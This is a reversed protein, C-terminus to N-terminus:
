FDVSATFFFSRSPAYPAVDINRAIAQNGFNSVEPDLGTYDTWTYLNRGSLELRVARTGSPFIRNVLSSPLDYALTVERLKVYSADEVFDTTKTGLRSRRIAGPSDPGGFDPSNRGFDYLFKTLNIVDGGKKWDLLGSLRWGGYSFENAFSMQFDPAADGVVVVEDGDLGVIQTVSKGEEIRFSGLSVGFGGVDFPEVPLATVKSTNRAFTARSVWDFDQTLVPTVALAVEVGRNRLEAGNFLETGFGTSPALTRQLILDEISKQYVSFSLSARQDLLQADLGLEIETQREPEIEPNGKVTNPGIFVGLFGGQNGTDYNTSKMGYLPQNGSQGIAARLKLEDLWSVPQPLRYSASAKPFLYFKDIDGNNTSREARAGLTLLLREDLTLFEEQAYFALAEIKERTEFPEVKAGQDINTQGAFLQRTIVSSLSLDSKERQVGASTTATFAGSGPIFVHAVNLSVNTNVNTNDGRVSTGPFGDDDEFFLEPPAFVSNEQTFQDLGGQLTVSLRQRESTLVEWRLNASGIMRFVDEENRTFDRTQFPNSREFSNEPYVGNEPRLDAFSPVFPLVMYYSVGANDNNTLGRSTNSHVLNTTVNATLRSGFLQTLNLRLSQKRYGTGQMIGGDEKVLGSVFYRTTNSGGRVSIDTEYSLPNEGFLAEELDEAGNQVQPAVGAGFRTVADEVTWNRSGIKNSLDSTGLRQTINFQPRGAIGTKTTIIVVGNAAKSGYIASASAGKLIEIREIDAPNLDAIRNVANDQTLEPNSGGTSETIANTNPAIAENSVIVGDVVYLPDVNANITTVGRLQVQMGGGPAGSNAQIYAGAVKGQLANEITPTPARDLEDGNVVAVDNALNRRAVSTAEGTDVQTELQLVDRELSVNAEAAGAELARDVSRYGLRRYRLTVAGAPVQLTYRGADDTYTGLATGVVTVSTGPLPENSVAGTVQGTVRRQEQAGATASVLLLLSLLASSFKRM